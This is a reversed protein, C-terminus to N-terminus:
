PQQVAAGSNLSKNSEDAHNVNEQQPLMGWRQFAELIQAEAEPSLIRARLVNADITGLKREFVGADFLKDFVDKHAERIEKLAALRERKTSQPSLAIQWAMHTTEGLVDQFAALATNLAMRDARVSRERLIKERLRRIYEVHLRIGLKELQKQMELTPMDHQVVMLKRISAMYLNAQEHSKKM